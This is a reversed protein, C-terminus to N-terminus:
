QRSRYIWLSALLSATLGGGVVALVTGFPEPGQVLLWVVGTGCVILGAIAGLVKTQNSTVVVATERVPEVLM